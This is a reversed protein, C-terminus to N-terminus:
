ASALLTGFLEFGYDSGAILYGKGTYRHKGGDTGIRFRVTKTRDIKVPEAANGARDTFKFEGSFKGCFIGTQCDIRPVTMVDDFSFDSNIYLCKEITDQWLCYKESALKARTSCDFEFEFIM